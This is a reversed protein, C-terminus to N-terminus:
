FLSGLAWGFAFLRNHARFLSGDALLLRRNLRLVNVAYYARVPVQVGPVTWRLELGLSGHLIGNTSELFTPRTKGLWNPLLWGSGLDFFGAAQAGAGLPVRYEANMAGVVDAGAPLASYTQKASSSILPILAYPGLEGSSLGRVQADGPFLLAHLPMPGQYSGAGSWTTRFAWANEHKLIPDPVIRAYEENSRIVNEDGGLIGGSVSNDFSVRESGTDRIWGLGFTSSSTRARLDPSPLGTLSSPLAFSYATDSHSLSYNLALSDSKGVAYSWGANLGETQSTYFPGKLSKALRLRLVTDFVSLALSSRSGLFGEMVLGLVLQLSEPGGDMHASLLEERQLLDFLTYAIGLTSGFQGLGGSFSVRQRGAESVRITVDATRNFDDTRVQIDQKRIPHFYGTKSIRALGSELAREDFPRGEELGIRRRLYRDPFRQLGRFEVHRVLSPPSDGFSIREQVLHTEPDFTRSTEIARGVEADGHVHKAHVGAVWAHRLDELAKASYPAGAQAKAYALLKRGQEGSAKVLEPSIVVSETRYFPGAEVPVSIALRIETERHPWPIWRNTKEEYASVHLTGVRAEPYGHDQYYILLRARDEEFGERTYAGRSRWSAFLGGPATRQMKHRLLNPSFEPHGAFDIRGVPVHPGEDIQFRVCITGNPIEDRQIGVHPWPHGLEKIASEIAKAMRQLNDPAAPEGLRPTLQQDSLIKEIEVTTLLRSGTYEVKALFPLEELRFVLRVRQELGSARSTSDEAPQTEVEIEGFWGLRGLTKVDRQIKNSDLIAGPHTSIQAQVAEPAIHRLGTFVIRDILPAAVTFLEDTPERGGSRAENGSAATAGLAVCLVVSDCAMLLWRVITGGQVLLVCSLIDGTLELNDWVQLLFLGARL